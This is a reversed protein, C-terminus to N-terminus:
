TASRTIQRVEMERFSLLRRMPRIATHNAVCDTSDISQTAKLLKEVNAGVQELLNLVECEFETM